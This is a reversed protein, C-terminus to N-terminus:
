ASVPSMAARRAGRPRPHGPRRRAHREKIRQRGPHQDSPDHRDPVREPQRRWGTEPGGRQRTGGRGARQSHHSRDVVRSGNRPMSEGAGAPVGPEQQDLCDARQGWASALGVLTRPQPLEPGARRRESSLVRTARSSNDRTVHRLRDRPGPCRAADFDQARGDEKKRRRHISEGRRPSALKGNPSRSRLLRPCDLRGDRKPM